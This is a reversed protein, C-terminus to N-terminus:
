NTRKARRVRGLEIERELLREEADQIERSFEERNAQSRQDAWVLFPGNTQQAKSIQEAVDVTRILIQDRDFDSWQRSSLMTKWYKLKDMLSLVRERLGNFNDSEYQRIWEDSNERQSEADYGDLKRRLESRAFKGIAGAFSEDAIGTVMEFMLACLLSFDSGPTTVFKPKGFRLVLNYIREVVYTRSRNDSASLPFVGIEHNYKTIGISFILHRLEDKLQYLGNLPTYESGITTIISKKHEEYDSDIYREVIKLHKISLQLSTNLGDLNDMIKKTTVKPHESSLILPLDHYCEEVVQTVFRIDLETTSGLIDFLDACLHRARDIFIQRSAMIKRAEDDLLEAKIFASLFPSPLYDGATALIEDAVRRRTDEAFGSSAENFARAMLDFPILERKKIYPLLDLFM